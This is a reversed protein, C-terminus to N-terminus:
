KKDGALNSFIASRLPPFVELLASCLSSGEVKRASEHGGNSYGKESVLGSEM